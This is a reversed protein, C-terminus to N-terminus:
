PQASPSDNRSGADNLSGTTTTTTTSTTTAIAAAAAAPRQVLKELLELHVQFQLFIASAGAISSVAPFETIATHSIKLMMSAAHQQQQQQQQLRQLPTPPPPVLLLQQNRKLQENRKLSKQIGAYTADRSADLLDDPYIYRLEQQSKRSYHLSLTSPPTKIMSFAKTAGCCCPKSNRRSSCVRSISLVLLLLITVFSVIYHKRGFCECHSSYQRRWSFMRWYVTTAVNSKISLGPQM